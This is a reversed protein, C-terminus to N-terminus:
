TRTFVWGIVVAAVLVVAAGVGSGMGCLLSLIALGAAM